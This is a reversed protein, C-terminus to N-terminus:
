VIDVSSNMDVAAGLGNKMISRCYYYAFDGLVCMQLLHAALIAVIGHSFGAYIWENCTIHNRAEWMFLGSLIRSVAMAAVYHSVLAESKGGTQMILWLQPMVAVVSLNLGTMWFTDFLPRSNMDAHLFSALVLSTLVMPGINWADADAQYTRHNVVLIHHLLWLIMMLSVGDIMQFLYDGSADVPLYGDLWVTCSLRFAIALGDLMLARASVGATSGTTLVQLVLFCTALCQVLVSMTLISSYAGGAVAHYVVLAITFCGTYACAVPTSFEAKPMASMKAMMVSM